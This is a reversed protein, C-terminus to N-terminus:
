WGIVSLSDLKRFLSPWLTDAYRDLRPRVEAFFSVKGVHQAIATGSEFDSYLANILINSSIRVSAVCYLSNLLTEGHSLITGELNNRMDHRVQGIHTDVPIHLAKLFKELIRREPWISDLEIWCQDDSSCTEIFQPFVAFVSIIM